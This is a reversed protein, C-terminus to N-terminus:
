PRVSGQAITLLTALEWTYREGLELETSFRRPVPADGNPEHIAQEVVYTGGQPLLLTRTARPNILEIHTKAGDGSSFALRWRYPTLNIIELHAARIQAASRPAGPGACGSLAFWAVVGAAAFGGCRLGL